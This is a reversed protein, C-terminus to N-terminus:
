SGLVELLQALRNMEDPDVLRLGNLTSLIKKWLELSEAEILHVVEDTLIGADEIFAPNILCEGLANLYEGLNFYHGAIASVSITHQVLYSLLFRVDQKEDEFKEVTAPKANSRSGNQKIENYSGAWDKLTSILLAEPCLVPFGQEIVIWELLNQSSGLAGDRPLAQTHLPKTPDEFYIKNDDNSRSKFSTHVTLFDTILTPIEEVSLDLIFELGYAGRRRGLLELAFGGTFACKKGASLTFQLVADAFPRLQDFSLPLEPFSEASSKTAPNDALPSPPVVASGNSISQSTGGIGDLGITANFPSINELVFAPTKSSVSIKPEQNPRETIVNTLLTHPLIILATPTTITDVKAKEVPLPSSSTAPSSTPSPDTSALPTTAASLTEDSSTVPYTAMWKAAGSSLRRGQPQGRIHSLHHYLPSSWSPTKVPSLSVRNLRMSGHFTLELPPLSGILGEDGELWSLSMANKIILAAASIIYSSSPSSLNSLSGKWDGHELVLVLQDTEERYALKVPPIDGGSAFARPPVDGPSGGDYHLAIWAFAQQDEDSPVLTNNDQTGPKFYDFINLVDLAYRLIVTAQSEDSFQSGTGLLYISVSGAEIRPTQAEFLSQLEKVIPALNMAVTQANGDARLGPKAVLRLQEEPDLAVARLTSLDGECEYIHARSEELGCEIIALFTM